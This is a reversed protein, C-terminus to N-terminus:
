QGRRGSGRPTPILKEPQSHTQLFPPSVHSSRRGPAGWGRKCNILMIKVMTIVFFPLADLPVRVLIATTLFVLLIAVLSGLIRVSQPIRQHLFSNLYAFILMPLMACLTMVNNFIDRLYNQDPSPVTPTASAQIDRSLNATGLSVNQPQGLRNKFYLTATMFFNWPLLTGLGLMFFILWVAKYRDQPQHSTTM